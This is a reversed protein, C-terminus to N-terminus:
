FSSFGRVAFGVSFVSRLTSFINPSSNTASYDNGCFFNRAQVTTEEGDKTYIMGM